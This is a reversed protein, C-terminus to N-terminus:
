LHRKKTQILVTAAEKGNKSLKVVGRYGTDGSFRTNGAM